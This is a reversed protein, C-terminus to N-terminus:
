LLVTVMMVLKCVCRFFQVVGDFTRGTKTSYMFQKLFCSFMESVSVPVLLPNTVSVLHKCDEDVTFMKLSISDIYGVFMLLKFHVQHVNAKGFLIVTDNDISRYRNETWTHM